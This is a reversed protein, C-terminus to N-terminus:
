TAVVVQTRRGEGNADEARQWTPREDEADELMTQAEFWGRVAAVQSAKRSEANQVFVNAGAWLLRQLADVQGHSAAEHAPTDGIMNGADPDASAQLLLQVASAHGYRCAWHLPSCLGRDGLHVDAQHSLLLAIVETQGAACAHHLASRGKPNTADVYGGATLYFHIYVLNGDLAAEHISRCERPDNWCSAGLTENFWFPLHGDSVECWHGIVNILERPVDWQSVGSAPHHYYFAGGPTAQLHWGQWARQDELGADHQNVLLSGDAPSGSLSLCRGSRPSQNTELAGVRASPAVLDSTTREPSPAEARPTQFPTGCRSVDPTLFGLTVEFSKDPTRNPIAHARAVRTSHDQNPNSWDHCNAQLGLPPLPGGGTFGSGHSESMAKDVPQTLSHTAARAAAVAAAFCQAELAKGACRDSENFTNNLVDLGRMRPTCPSLETEMSHQLQSLENLKELLEVSHETVERAKGEVNTESRPDKKLQMGEPRIEPLLSDHQDLRFYETRSSPQRVVM